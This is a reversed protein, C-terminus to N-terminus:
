PQKQFKRLKALFWILPLFTVAMFVPLFEPGLGDARGLGTNVMAWAIYLLLTMLGAKLVIVMTRLLQQVEPADRDVRFPLNILRQYRSALTMVIYMSANVLTLIWLTNKSGWGDPQGSAGFHTPMRDPLNAWNAAVLGIMGALAAIAIAECVWEVTSRKGAM